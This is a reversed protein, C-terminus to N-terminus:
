QILRKGSADGQKNLIYRVTPPYYPFPPLYMSDPMTPRQLFPMYFPHAPPPPHVARVRPIDQVRGPAHLDEIAGTKAEYGRSGLSFVGPVIQHGSIGSLESSSPMNPHVRNEKSNLYSPDPIEKKCVIPTGNLKPSECGNSKVPSMTSTNPPPLVSVPSQSGPSMAQKALKRLAAAFSSNQGGSAPSSMPVSSAQTVSAHL